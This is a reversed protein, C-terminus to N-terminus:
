PVRDALSQDESFRLELPMLFRFSVGLFMTGPMLSSGVSSSAEEILEADDCSAIVPLADLREPRLLGKVGIPYSSKLEGDVSLILTIM